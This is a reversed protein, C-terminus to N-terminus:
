RLDRLILRALVDGDLSMRRLVLTGVAGNNGCHPQHLQPAWDALNRDALKLPCQEPM